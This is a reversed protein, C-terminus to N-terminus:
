NILLRRQSFASATVKIEETEDPKKTEVKHDTPKNINYLKVEFGFIFRDLDLIEM